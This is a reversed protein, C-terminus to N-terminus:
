NDELLDEPFDNYEVLVIQAMDEPTTGANWNDYYPADALDDTSLGCIGGIEEDVETIWEDFTM